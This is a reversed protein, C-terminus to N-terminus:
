SASLGKKNQKFLTLVEKAMAKPTFPKSLSGVIFPIESVLESRLQGELSTLVIVPVDFSTVKKKLRRIVDVGSEKELILDLLVIDPKNSTFKQIFSDGDMAFDYEINHSRFSINLLDHINKDDDLSLIKVVETNEVSDPRLFKDIAKEFSSLINENKSIFFDPMSISPLLDFYSVSLMLTKISQNVSSSVRTSAILSPGDLKGVHLDTILLDFREDLLRSFAEIGSSVISYTIDKKNFINKFHEILREDKEVLLVRKKTLKETLLNDLEVSYNSRSSKQLSKIYDEMLDFIKLSLEFDVISDKELNLYYSTHDLINRSASVIFDLGYSGAVSKINHISRIFSSIDKESIDSKKIDKNKVIVNKLAEIESPLSEIFEERALSLADQFNNSKM